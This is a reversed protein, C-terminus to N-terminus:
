PKVPSYSFGILFSHESLESTVKSGPMPGTMGQFPGSIKNNFARYYGLDVGFGNGIDYGLGFTAHHQVIAPAPLNFMTLSEPIPNEAFNYGGRLKIQENLRMEAGGAFSWISQWGFGKVAGTADFGEKEFGRTNGYSFYKADGGLTIWDTPAFSLGAAYVAPMDMAFEITRPQGFNPLNPNEYVAGFEFKQFVQPSVYSIGFALQPTLSYQLGAQFGIGFSGDADTARSYFARDDQTFPVGDPGPDVSPSAIPMPDVALSAWDVNAAFGLRLKDTAKVAIAPIIKMLQFSSYVGGFGFPRPMLIPNGPDAHYDVGFGGAGVGALGVVVRDGKFARSWGFAPIPTFESSSTTSGNLPGMASTITRDPLFMEFGIEVRTGPFNALGAPNVYFAGLISNSQAVAVGGMASNIAGVGHLFHGDTARAPQAAAVFIAAGTILWTSRILGM